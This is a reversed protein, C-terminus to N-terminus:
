STSILASCTFDTENVNLLFQSLPSDNKSVLERFDVSSQASIHLVIHFKHRYTQKQNVQLSSLFEKTEDHWVRFWEAGPYFLPRSLKPWFSKNLVTIVLM